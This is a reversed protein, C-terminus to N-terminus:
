SQIIKVLQQDEVLRIGDALIRDGATLGDIIEVQNESSKGLTVFTKVATFTNNNADAQVLRFVYNKGNQDELINKTPVLIASPIQHNNINLQATMNPKHNQQPHSLATEVRFSRNNPNIFNGVSRVNGQRIEGLVPIVVEVPTKTQINPLHMEPIEAEITMQDLNVLRIIPTLGPVMNSGPDAIIHDVIGDFPATITTKDVQDRMQAVSKQLSLYQTKAQLYQIESGIKQSWLREQREFTTKALEMQLILQQLQEIMGSDTLTAMREGKKVQQGERVAINKLLGAIEPYLVLNRDTTLNGQFTVFHRYAQAKLDIATVLLFKQETDTKSIADNLSELEEQLTNISKVVAAKKTQMASLDGSAVIESTSKEEKPGCYILTFSILLLIIKKMPRKNM